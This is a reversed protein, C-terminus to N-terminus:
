IQNRLVMKNLQEPTVETTHIIVPCDLTESWLIYIVVAFCWDFELCRDTRRWTDLVHDLMHQHEDDVFMTAVAMGGQIRLYQSALGNMKELFQDELDKLTDPKLRM